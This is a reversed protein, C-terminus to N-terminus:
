QCAIKEIKGIFTICKTVNKQQILWGSEAVLVSFLISTRGLSWGDMSMSCINQPM